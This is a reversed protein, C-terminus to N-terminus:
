YNPHLRIKGLLKEVAALEKRYEAEADPDNLGADRIYNARAQVYFEIESLEKKTLFHKM